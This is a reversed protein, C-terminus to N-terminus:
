LGIVDILLKGVNVIEGPQLWKDFFTANDQDSFGMVILVNVMKAISEQKGEVGKISVGRHHEFSRIRKSWKHIIIRRQGVLARPLKFLRIPLKKEKSSIKFEQLV